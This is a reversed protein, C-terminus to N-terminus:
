KVGKAKLLIGELEELKKDYYAWSDNNEVELDEFADIIEDCRKILDQYIEYENVMKVILVALEDSKCSCILEATKDTVQRSNSPDVRLPTKM